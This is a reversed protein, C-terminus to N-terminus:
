RLGTCHRGLATAVALYPQSVMQRYLWAALTSDGDGEWVVQGQAPLTVGEPVDMRARQVRAQLDAQTSWTLSPSYVGAPVQDVGVQGEVKATGVVRYAILGQQRVELSAGVPLEEGYPTLVMISGGGDYAYATSRSTQVPTLLLVLCVSVSCLATKWPVRAGRGGVKTFSCRLFEFWGHVILFCMLWLLLAKLTAGIASFGMSGDFVLYLSYILVLPTCSCLVGYVSWGSFEHIAESSNGELLGAVAKKWQRMAKDRLFPQERWAMLAIYGDFKVTPIANIIAGTYLSTVLTAM